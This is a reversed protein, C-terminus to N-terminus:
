DDNTILLKWNDKYWDFAKTLGQALSFNNNFGLIEKAKDIVASTSMQDGLRDPIIKKLIKKSTVLEFIKLAESLSVSKENGINFVENICIGRKEIALEFASIIDDIYTFSRFHNVSNKFITVPEGTFSSKFLKPFLKEPREREGYVSYLRLSTVPLKKERGYYMVAQEGALKTLGYYSAPQPYADEKSTAYKGYVSSTSGYVFLKLKKNRLAFELLNVTSYFNNIEYQKFTVDNSIGPQASLHIIYDFDTDVEEFKDISIDMLKFDCGSKIIDNKNKNKLKVSYYDSLNDIGTVKFGKQSLYLSLNSGIFGAVGTVLIKEL